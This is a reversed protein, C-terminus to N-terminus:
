LRHNEKIIRGLVKELFMNCNFMMKHATESITLISFQAGWQQLVYNGWFHIVTEAVSSKLIGVQGERGVFKIWEVNQKM